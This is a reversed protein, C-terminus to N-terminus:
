MVWYCVSSFYVMSKSIRCFEFGEFLIAAVFNFEFRSVLELVERFREFKNEAAYCRSSKLCVSDSCDRRQADRISSTREKSFQTESVWANVLGAM